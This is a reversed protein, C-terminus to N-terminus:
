HRGGTVPNSYHYPPIYTSPYARYVVTPPRDPPLSTEPHTLPQAAKGWGEDYPTYMRFYAHLSRIKWVGDQKVYENEYTGLGWLASKQYEGVESVFRWRGRATRGDPAITIIPQLQLHNFLLGRMLGHPALFNLYELIRKQGVFVGRGGIELTGDPAFLEATQKWLAKDVFYGYTRQLGEIQREDELRRLEASVHALRARARALAPDGSQSHAVTLFAAVAACAGLAAALKWKM